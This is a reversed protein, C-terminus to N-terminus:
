WFHFDLVCDHVARHLSTESVKGAAAAPKFRRSVGGSGWFLWIKFCSGFIFILQVSM